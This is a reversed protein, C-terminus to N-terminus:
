KRKGRSIIKKRHIFAIFIICSLGLLLITVYATRETTKSKDSDDLSTVRGQLGQFKSDFNIKSGNTNVDRNITIGALITITTIM